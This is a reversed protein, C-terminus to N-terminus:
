GNTTALKGNGTLYTANNGTGASISATPTGSGNNTFAFKASATSTGGLLLDYQNDKPVIANNLLDWPNFGTAVSTWSLNGNTDSVLAQGSVAPVASPLTLTYPTVVNDFAKLGIHGATG